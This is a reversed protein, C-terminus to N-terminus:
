RMPSHVPFSSQRTLTRHLTWNNSQQIAAAAGDGGVRLDAVFDCLRKMVHTDVCFDLQDRAAVAGHAASRNGFPALLQHHDAAAVARDARRCRRQDPGLGQEPDQRQTRQVMERAVEADGGLQLIRRLQDALPWLSAHVHGLHAAADEDVVARDAEIRQEDDIAIRLALTEAPGLGHRHNHRGNARQHAETVLPQRQRDVVM